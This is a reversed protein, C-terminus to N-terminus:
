NIMISVNCVNKSLVWPYISSHSSQDHFKRQFCQSSSELNFTVYLHLIVMVKGVHLYRFSQSFDMLIWDLIQEQAEVVLSTELSFQKQLSPEIEHSPIPFPNNM